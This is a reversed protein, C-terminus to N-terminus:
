KDNKEKLKFQKLFKTWEPNRAEELDQETPDDIFEVKSSAVPSNAETIHFEKNGTQKNQLEEVILKRKGRLFAGLFAGLFSSLLVGIILIINELM